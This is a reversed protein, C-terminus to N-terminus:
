PIATVLINDIFQPYFLGSTDSVFRFYIGSDLDDLVFQEHTWVGTKFEADQYSQLTEWNERDTSIDLRLTGTWSNDSQFKDFELMISDHPGGLPSVLTMTCTDECERFYVVRSGNDDMAPSFYRQITEIGSDTVKARILDGTRDFDGLSLRHEFDNRFLASDVPIPTIRDIIIKFSGTARNGSSDVAACRVNHTGIHFGLGSPSNCHIFVDDDVTDTATFDYHVTYSINDTRLTIDDPVDVTPPTTDQITVLQTYTADNGASDTVAWTVTTNGLPFSAPADNSMTLLDGNADQATATGIYLVTLMGTAEATLDDPVTIDSLTTTPIGDNDFPGVTVDFSGTGSNGSNDTATCTITTTGFVVSTGRPPDCSADIPGDVLDTAVIDNYNIRSADAFTLVRVDWLADFGPPTTDQITVTQTATALQGSDIAVTWTVISKGLPFSAPADNTITVPLESGELTANAAGIDLTTLAGTAEATVDSPPVVVLDSLHATITVTYQQCVSEGADNNACAKVQTAGAQLGTMTLRSNQIQASLITDDSIEATYESISGAFKTHLYLMATNDETIEFNQIRNKITIPQNAAIDVRFTQCVPEHAGDDACAEVQTSGAQLGTMTLRSNQIQASVTSNDAIKATYTMANQDTFKTHLYLRATDGETIEFNQIRNRIAPPEADVIIIVNFSATDSNGSDDTATCTIVTSEFVQTGRQPTCSVDATGDVIDTAIPVSYDLSTAGGVTLISEDDPTHDFAPPTTDQITVTQTANAANGSDDTATWTITTNGLPYSVPADSTIEPNPDTDDTATANDIDLVTLKGTAEATINEPAAIEPPIIDAQGDGVTVDFSAAATNGSYDTATCTVTTVGPPLETGILPECSVDVPYPVIDTVAPIEYALETSNLRMDEPTHVFEPPTTDQITVVQNDSGSLHLKIGPQASWHVLTNGLPYASPVLQYWIYAEEPHSSVIIPEGADVKTLAGTAEATIDDPATLTLVPVPPPDSSVIIRSNGKVTQSDPHSAHITIYDDGTSLAEIVLKDELIQASIYDFDEQLSYELEGGARHLFKDGLPLELTDGVQLYFTETRTSVFIIPEPPVYEEEFTIAHLKLIDQLSEDQTDEWANHFEEFSQFVGSKFVKIIEDDGLALNDLIVSNNRHDKIADANYDCQSTRQTLKRKALCDLFDQTDQDRDHIDDVHDDKIDWLAAAIQTEVFQGVVQGTAPNHRPAPSFKDNTGIASPDGDLYKWWFRSLDKELNTYTGQDLYIYHSFAPIDYVLHPVFGAWGEVWACQANSPFSFYHVFQENRDDVDGDFNRDTNCYVAYPLTGAVDHVHHAFEHLITKLSYGDDGNLWLTNFYPQYASGVRNDSFIRANADHQWKITLYEPAIDYNAFFDRADTITHIIGAAGVYKDQLEFDVMTTVGRFDDMRTSEYDYTNGTKDILILDHDGRSQVKILLDVYSSDTPDDNVISHILYTGKNSTFTCADSGDAQLLSSTRIGDTRSSDYACVQIGNILVDIREEFYFYRPGLKSHPDSPYEYEASITGAVAFTESADPDYANEYGAMIRDKEVSTFNTHDLINRTREPSLGINILEDAVDAPIGDYTTVLHIATTRDFKEDAARQEEPTLITRSMATEPKIVIVPEEYIVNCANFAGNSEHFMGVCEDTEGKEGGFLTHDLYSEGNEIYERVYISNNESAAVSTHITEGVFGDAFITFFGEQFVDVKVLVTYPKGPEIIETVDKPNYPTFVAPDDSGINSTMDYLRIKDTDYTGVNLTVRLNLDEDPSDYYTGTFELTATEGVAPLDSFELSYGHTIFGSSAHVSVPALIAVALAALLWYKMYALPPPIESISNQAHYTELISRNIIM